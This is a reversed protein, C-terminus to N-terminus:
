FHSRSPVRRNAFGSQPDRHYDSRSREAPMTSITQPLDIKELVCVLGPHIIPLSHFSSKSKNESRHRRDGQERREHMEHQHGPVNGLWGGGCNV